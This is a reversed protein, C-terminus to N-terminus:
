KAKESIAVVGGQTRFFLVGESIAPTAMCVEDMPNQSLLQFAPGAKVVFIDGEESTFYLKGDAAVSSATFGTRGTGMREQYLQKGTKAEYCALVGNDRCVYLYEGYVLPTQMYGGNRRYSWAIHDNATKDGELSIDGTATAKVAYVPAMMGHANTIFILGHAIVPTPVPIDGGGKLKWVEKGTAFDYGGIHKWGNVAILPKGDQTYITPTSWTPVEVRPTRWVENGTKADFAALFSDKQVDCQVIVRDRYLTPSSATGWQAQPMMFYGADLLGLDKKWLLKGNM